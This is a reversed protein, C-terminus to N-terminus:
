DGACCVLVLKSKIQEFRERHAKAISNHKEKLSKLCRSLPTFVKLHEDELPYDAHAKNDELSAEMQRITKIIRYAEETIQNKETTVLRLQNNLAESLATFLETERSEREHNPVGIEDFLGHLQAIASSVQTSLFSTDM